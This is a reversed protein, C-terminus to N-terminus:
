ILHTNAYYPTYIHNVMVEDAWSLMAKADAVDLDQTTAKVGFWALSEATQPLSILRAIFALSM